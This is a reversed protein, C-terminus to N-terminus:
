TAKDTVDPLSVKLSVIDSTRILSHSHVGLPTHLNSVIINQGESDMAEFTCNFSTNAEYLTVQAPAHKIALMLSLFDLRERARAKRPDGPKMASHSLSHTFSLTFTNTKIIIATTTSILTHISSKVTVTTPSCCITRQSLRLSHTFTRPPARLRTNHTYRANRRRPRLHTRENTSLEGREKGTRRHRADM